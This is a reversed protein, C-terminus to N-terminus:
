LDGCCERLRKVAQQTTVLRDRTVTELLPSEEAELTELGRKVAERVSFEVSSV